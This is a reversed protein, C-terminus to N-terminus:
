NEEMNSPTGILKDFLNPIMETRLEVDNLLLRIMQIVDQKFKSFDNEYRQNLLSYLRQAIIEISRSPRIDHLFIYILSTELGTLFQDEMHNCINYISMAAKVCFKEINTENSLDKLSITKQKIGVAEFLNENEHDFEWKM